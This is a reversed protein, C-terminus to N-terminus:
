FIENRDRGRERGGAAAYWHGDLPREAAFRRVVAGKGTSIVEVPWVWTEDAADGGELGALKGGGGGRLLRPRSRRGGHRVRKQRLLDEEVQLSTVDPVRSAVEDAQAWRGDDLHEPPVAVVKPRGQLKDVQNRRVARTELM